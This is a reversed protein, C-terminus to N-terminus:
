NEANEQFEKHKNIYNNINEFVTKLEFIRKEEEIKQEEIDVDIPEFFGFLSKFKKKFDKLRDSIKKEVSNKLEGFIANLKDQIDAIKEQIFTTMKQFAAPLNEIINLMPVLLKNAVFNIPKSLIAPLNETKAAFKTTKEALASINQAFKEINNNINSSLFAQNQLAMERQQQALKQAKMMQGVAFCEDWSMEGPPPSNIKKSGGGGGGGSCIPCAGMPLGHPCTGIKSKHLSSLPLNM